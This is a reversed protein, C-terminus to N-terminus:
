GLLTGLRSSLLEIVDLWNLTPNWNGEGLAGTTMEWIAPRILQEAEDRAPATERRVEVTASSVFREDHEAFGATLRFRRGPEGAATGVETGPRKDYEEPTEARSTFAYGLYEDRTHVQGASVRWPQEPTGTLSLDMLGAFSTETGPRGGDVPDWRRGEAAFKLRLRTPEDDAELGWIGISTVKPGPGARWTKWPPRLLVDVTIPEAMSNLLTDDGDVAMVWATVALRSAETIADSGLRSDRAAALRVREAVLPLIEVGVALTVRASESEGV